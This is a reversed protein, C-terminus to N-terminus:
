DTRALTAKAKNLTKKGKNPARKKKKEDINFFGGRALIVSLLKKKIYTGKTITKKKKLSCSIWFAKKTYYIMGATATGRYYKAPKMYHFRISDLRIPRAWIVHMAAMLSCSM